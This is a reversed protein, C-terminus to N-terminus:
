EWTVSSTESGTYAKDEGAVAKVTVTKTKLFADNTVEVSKDADPYLHEIDPLHLTYGTITGDEQAETTLSVSSELSYNHQDGNADTYAAHEITIKWGDDETSLSGDGATVHYTVMVDACTTVQVEYVDACEVADWSVARNTVTWEEKKEEEPFDPNDGTITVKLTGEISENAAAPTDLQVYPLAIPASAVWASSLKGSSGSSIRTYFVM